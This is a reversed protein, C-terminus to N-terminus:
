EPSEDENKSKKPFLRIVRFSAYLTLGIGFAIRLSHQINDFYDSFILLYALCFYVIIITFSLYKGIKQM